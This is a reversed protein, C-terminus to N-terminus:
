EYDVGYIKYLIPITIHLDDWLYNQFDIFKNAKKMFELCYDLFKKRELKIHSSLMAHCKFCLLILNNKNNIIKDDFIKQDYFYYLPVIHHIHKSINDNIQSEITICKNIQRLACENNYFNFIEMKTDKSIKVRLNKKNKEKLYYAYNEIQSLVGLYDSLKEIHNENGHWYLYTTTKGIGRVRAENKSIEGVNNAWNKLDTFDKTFFSNSSSISKTYNTFHNSTLVIYTKKHEIKVCSFIIFIDNLRCSRSKSLFQDSRIRIKNPLYKNCFSAINIPYIKDISKTIKLIENFVKDFKLQDNYQNLWDLITQKPKKRYVVNKRLFRIIQDYNKM